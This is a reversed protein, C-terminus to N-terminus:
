NTILANSMAQDKRPLGFAKINWESWPQWYKDATNLMAKATISYYLPNAM